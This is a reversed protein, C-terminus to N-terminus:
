LLLYFNINHQKRPKSRGGIVQLTTIIKSDKKIGLLQLVDNDGILKGAFTLTTNVTDVGTKQKIESKVKAGTWANDVPLTVTKREADAIELQVNFYRESSSSAM